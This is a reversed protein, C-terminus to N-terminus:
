MEQANAHAYIIRRPHHSLIRDWDKKLRPNEDYGSLYTYPELDGVICDRDDLLISISDESHSPTHLIEGGIGLSRLFARSEAIPLIKARTEDIPVYHLRKDRSFIEDPFHLYGRQVDAALLVVGLRQLEGIIGVHDPHYHTALVYPIDSIGLGASKIAKFFHPLTGAWDTDILLGGKSGPIYFTNTNGYCLKIMKEAGRVSPFRM